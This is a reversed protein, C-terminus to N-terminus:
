QPFYVTMEGQKVLGAVVSAGWVLVIILSHRKIIYLSQKMFLKYYVTDYHIENMKKIKESSISVSFGWLTALM